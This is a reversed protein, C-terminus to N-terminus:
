NWQYWHYFRSCMRYIADYVRTASRLNRGGMIICVIMLVWLTFLDLSGLMNESLAFFLVGIANVGVGLLFVFLSNRCNIM